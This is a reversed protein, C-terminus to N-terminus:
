PKREAFLSQEVRLFMTQKLLDLSGLSRALRPLRKSLECRCCEICPDFSVHIPTKKQAKRVCLVSVLLKTRQILFRPRRLGVQLEWSRNMLMKAGSGKGEDM